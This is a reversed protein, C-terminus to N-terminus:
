EASLAKLEARQKAIADAKAKPWAKMAQDLTVLIDDSGHDHYEWEIPAKVLISVTPTFVGDAFYYRTQYISFKIGYAKQAALQATTIEEHTTM